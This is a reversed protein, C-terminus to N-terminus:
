LLSRDRSNLLIGSVTADEQVRRTLEQMALTRVRVVEVKPVRVLLSMRYAFPSGAYSEAAFREWYRNVNMIGRLKLDSTSILLADEFSKAVQNDARNLTTAFERRIDDRIASQIVSNAEAEALEAARSLDPVSAVTGVFFLFGDRESVKSDLWDPRRESSAMVQADQSSDSLQRTAACGSLPILVSLM